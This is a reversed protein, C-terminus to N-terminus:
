SGGASSNEESESQSDTDGPDRKDAEQERRSGAAGRRRCNSDKARGLLGVDGLEKQGEGSRLRPRPARNPRPTTM